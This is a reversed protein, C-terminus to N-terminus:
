LRLSVLKLAQAQTLGGGGGSSDIQITGAGNTITIGSGASLTAYSFGTGNGILLQGNTPTSALSIALTGAATIPSGSVSLFSPVTAAVSTVTGTGSVATWSLGSSQASDATLVYGNTGVGLRVNDTGDYAILDGKTTAPSLADFAATKGTQGTGGQGITVAANTTLITTTADPLTYTKEATTAGSFKTFGNGTGGYTSAIVQTLAASGDFNNGYIARATTLTAASGTTNQNLTPVDTVQITSMVVNTGNGRLYSGSTVAGAFSNMAAQATTQGTGGRTLAITAGNWTANTISGPYDLTNTSWSVNAPTQDHRDWSGAATANSLLVVTVYAGSPISVVLTGSNNNVTIAGSSQNNNFSFITGNSLTTANPLQIVQGGSGTVLYVPTSAVTLTITSGSAAVSTFGNFYANATINNSADRLVVSNAGSSTTVGTGGNAVALTGALTITGSTTVPGGSTTLGTSGGSVDISTVTGSGGGGGAAWGTATLVYSEQGALPMPVEGQIGDKSATPATFTGFDVIGTHPAISM